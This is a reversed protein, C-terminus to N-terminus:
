SRPYEVRVHGGTVIELRSQFAGGCHLTGDQCNEAPLIAEGGHPAGPVQHGGEGLGIDPNQVTCTVGQHHLGGIGQEVGQATGQSAEEESFAFSDLLDINAQQIDSGLAEFQEANEKFDDLISEKRLQARIDDAGIEEELSAKIDNFSRKIKRLWVTATRITGPLQEPGIVLLGVVLVLLMETFGLDFM